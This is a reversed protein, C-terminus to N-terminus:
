KKKEVEKESKENEKGSGVEKKGKGEWMGNGREMKGKVQERVKIEKGKEKECVM